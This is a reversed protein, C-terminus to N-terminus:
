VASLGEYFGQILLAISSMVKCAHVQCNSASMSQTFEQVFLVAYCVCLPTYHLM